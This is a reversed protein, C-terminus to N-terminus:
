KKQDKIRALVCAIEDYTVSNDKIRNKIIKLTDKKSKIKSIIKYVKDKSLVDLLFLQNHGILNILHKWVTSEKILSKEAIKKISFGKKFLYLTKQTRFGFGTKELKELFNRQKASNTKKHSLVFQNDFIKILHNRYKFTNAHSCYALWGELSDFIKEKSLFGTKFLIKTQNFKREFNKLNSKKILKYNYFIRFGLFNIGKNLNYIKSKDPHIELKLRELLFLEIEKKWIELQERSKHLIVFDDVYRVYYKAKLKHKVFQDLENLYINAFFQSTLNGLPMGKNLSSNHTERVVRFQGASDFNNSLKATEREREREREQNL